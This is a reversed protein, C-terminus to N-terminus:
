ARGASLDRAVSDIHVIHAGHHVRGDAALRRRLHDLAFLEEIQHDAHVRLEAGACALDAVQQHGRGAALLNRKGFQGVDLLGAARRKM